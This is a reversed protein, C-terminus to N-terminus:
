CIVHSASMGGVCCDDDLGVRLGGGVQDCRLDGDHFREDLTTPPDRDDRIPLLNRRPTPRLLNRNLRNNM